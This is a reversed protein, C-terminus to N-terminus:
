EQVLELMRQIEGNTGEDTTLEKEPETTKKVSEAENEILAQNLHDMGPETVEKLAQIGDKSTQEFYHIQSLQINIQKGVMEAEASVAKQNLGPLFLPSLEQTIVYVGFLVIAGTFVFTFTNLLPSRLSNLQPKFGTLRAQPAAHRVISSLVRARSERVFDDRPALKKFEKLIRIINRENM